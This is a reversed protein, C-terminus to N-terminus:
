ITYGRYLNRIPLLNLAAENPNSTHAIKYMYYHLNAGLHGTRGNQEKNGAFNSSVSKPEEGAFM